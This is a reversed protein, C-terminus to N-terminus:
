EHKEGMAANMAEVIVTHTDAPRTSLFFRWLEADKRLAEIEAKAQELEKAVDVFQQQSHGYAAHLDQIAEHQCRLEAALALEALELAKSM